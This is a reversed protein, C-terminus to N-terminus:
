VCLIYDYKCLRAVLLKVVRMARKHGSSLLHATFELSNVAVVGCLPCAPISVIMECQRSSHTGYCRTCIHLAACAAPAFSCSSENYPACITNKISKTSKTSKLNNFEIDPHFDTMKHPRGCMGCIHPFACAITTCIATNFFRCPRVRTIHANTNINTNSNSGSDKAEFRAPKRPRLNNICQSAIWHRNRKFTPHAQHNYVLLVNHGLRVYEVMTSSFDRDGSVIVLSDDPRTTQRIFRIIEGDSNHIKTKTLIIHQIGEPFVPAAADAFVYFDIKTHIKTNNVWEIIKAFTATIDGAALPINDWDYYIVVRQASQPLPQMKILANINSKENITIIHHCTNSHTNSHSAPKIITIANNSLASQIDLSIAGKSSATIPTRPYVSMIGHALKDIDAAVISIADLDIHVSAM